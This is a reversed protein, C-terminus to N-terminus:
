PTRAVANPEYWETDGSPALLALAKSELVDIVEARCRTGEGDDAVVYDGKQPWSGPNSVDLPALIEGGRERNFDVLLVM